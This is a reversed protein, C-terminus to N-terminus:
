IDEEKNATTFIFNLHQLVEQPCFSLASVNNADHVNIDAGRLLLLEALDFERAMCAMYFASRGSRDQLNVDAGRRILLEIVAAKRQNDVAIILPTRGYRNSHNVYAGHELLLEIM